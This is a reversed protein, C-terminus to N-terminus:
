FEETVGQEEEELLAEMRDACEAKTIDCFGCEMLSPVKRAPEESSVRKILDSLNNIFTSNVAASPITVQQDGYVVLGDFQVGKYKGLARPIAFMYIMVQVHDSAKPQGTKIDCITGTEGMSILDPKGGLTAARGRLTFKNQDETFVAKGQSELEARTRGLLATPNIRWSTFDTESKHKVIDIHNAKYWTAWECCHEGVLLKSLWTTWIYPSQRRTAM